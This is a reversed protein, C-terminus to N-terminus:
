EQEAYFLSRPAVPRCLFRAKGWQHRHRHLQGLQLRRFDGGPNPSGTLLGHRSRAAPRSLASELKRADSGRVQACRAAQQGDPRHRLGHQLVPGVYLISRSPQDCHRTKGGRRASPRCLGFLRERVFHIHFSLSEHYPERSAPASHSRMAPSSAASSPLRSLERRMVDIEQQQEVIIAQALRRLIPDRGYQLQVKAMDIAGQHHPIMMAAFDRDADGTHPIAMDDTMRDMAEAMARHFSLDAMGAATAEQLSPNVHKYTTQAAAPGVLLVVVALYPFLRSM